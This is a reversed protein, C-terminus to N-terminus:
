RSNDFIISSSGSAYIAELDFRAGLMGHVPDYIKIMKKIICYALRDTDGQAYFRLGEGQSFYTPRHRTFIISDNAAGIADLQGSVSFRYWGDFRIEVGPEITLKQGSRIQVNGSLIYPNGSKTWTGSIDGSIDTGNIGEGYFPVKASATGYFASSNMTLLATHIGLNTPKYTITVSKASFAPITLSGSSLSFNIRESLQFNNITISQDRYNEIVFDAKRSKNVVVEYFNFDSFNIHILGGGYFGV